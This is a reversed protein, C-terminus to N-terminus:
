RNLKSLKTLLQILWLILREFVVSIIIIVVTWAFLEKTMLYLKAELLQRGISGASNGIVEAAIGAKWCFGLGISIATIFYPMVSPIYIARVKKWSSIEFVKAMQLLKEDAAVLGQLINSYMIPLVMLFAILVSLNKSQIWVLALIIFSAVPISKIVKIVPLFFEKLVLSLHSLVALLTGIAIALLFGTIIRLFSSGITQWFTVEGVMQKLTAIVSIPSALLIKNGIKVSIGQWLLLWFCVALLKIGYSKLFSKMRSKTM